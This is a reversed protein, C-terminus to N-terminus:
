CDCGDSELPHDVIEGTKYHEIRITPKPGTRYGSWKIHGAIVNEPRQLWEFCIVAVAAAEVEGLEIAGEAFACVQDRTVAATKMKTRVKLTVGTWPNPIQKDFEDPFLRHVVRWSKRCLGVLKEGTRTRQKGSSREGEKVEGSLFKDYLALAAHMRRPWSGYPITSPRSSM